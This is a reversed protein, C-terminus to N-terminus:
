SFPQSIRHGESKIEMDGVTKGFAPVAVEVRGGALPADRCFIGIGQQPLKGAKGRLGGQVRVRDIEAAPGGAQQVGGISGTEDPGGVRQGPGLDRQLCVGLGDRLFREPAEPGGSDVPDGEPHLRGPVALQFCQSTGVSCLLGPGSEPRRLLGPEGVDAPVDHQGQGMVGLGFEIFRQFEDLLATGGM